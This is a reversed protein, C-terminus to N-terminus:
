PIARGMNGHDELVPVDGVPNRRLWGLMMFLLPAYPVASLSGVSALGSLVIAIAFGYALRSFIDGLPRMLFVWIFFFLWLFVGVIGQTAALRIWESEGGIIERDKTADDQLFYPISIGQGRALGNGLPFRELTQWVRDMLAVPNGIRSQVMETDDLDRFRHLRENVGGVTYVVALAIAALAFVLKTRLAETGTLCLGIALGIGLMVVNARTASLLIGVVAAALGAGFWWLRVSSTDKAFYAALIIPVSCLMTGGFSHAHSFLSPIRYFGDGVGSVYIIHTSANRPIFTEIGYVYQLTGMMLAALNLAVLWNALITWSRVNFRTGVMLFPLFSATFRFGVLQIPLSDAPYFVLIAPWIVLVVTWRDINLSFLSADKAAQFCGIFCGLAATDFFFHTFTDQINARLYGYCYGWAMTM